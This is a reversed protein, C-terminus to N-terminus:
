RHALEQLADSYEAVFEDVYQAVEESLPTKETLTTIRAIEKDNKTVIYETGNFSVDDTIEAFRARAESVTITKIM